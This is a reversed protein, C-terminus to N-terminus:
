PNLTLAWGVGGLDYFATVRGSRDYTTVAYCYFYPSIPHHSHATASTCSCYAQTGTSGLLIGSSADM